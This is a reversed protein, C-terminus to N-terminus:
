TLQKQMVSINSFYFYFASCEYYRLQVAPVCNEATIQLKTIVFRYTKLRKLNICM